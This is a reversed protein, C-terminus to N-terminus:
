IPLDTQLLPGLGKLNKFMKIANIIVAPPLRTSLLASVAQLLRQAMRTRPASSVDDARFVLTKVQQAQAM